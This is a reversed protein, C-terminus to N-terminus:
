QPVFFIIGIDNKTLCLHGGVAFPSDKATKELISLFQLSEIASM